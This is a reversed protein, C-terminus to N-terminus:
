ARSRAVLTMPLSTACIAIMMGFMGATGAMACGLAGVLGAVWTACLLFATSDERQSAATFGLAIGAFLGGGVCALMCAPWCAGGICCHGSSRLALPLVLPALGAIAGPMVARGYAQGRARLWAVTAFLLVGASLTLAPRGCAYMSLAVTPIVPLAARLGLHMRSREYARKSRTRLDTSAM